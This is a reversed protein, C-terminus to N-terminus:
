VKHDCTNITNQFKISIMNVSYKITLFQSKLILHDSKDIFTYKHIWLHTYSVPEIIYHKYKIM